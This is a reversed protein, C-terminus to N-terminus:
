YFYGKMTRLVCKKGVKKQGSPSLKVTLKRLRNLPKSIKPCFHLMYRAKIDKRIKQYLRRIDTVDKFFFPMGGSSNSIKKLIEQYQDYDEMQRGISYILSNSREVMNILTYPDVASSNDEGDSLIIVINQGIIPKMMKVGYAIADYLATAGFPIAISLSKELEDINNTFESDEFVEHNFFVIIARDDLRLLEKLFIKAIDKVDAIKDKMSSSIDILLLLHFSSQGDATFYNLEQPVGDEMLIFDEQTLGSIYNDGKDTVSVPVQVQMVNVEQSDDSRFSLVTDKLNGHSLTRAVAELTKSKAARGFDYKLTYPPANFEKILKGDLYIALSRIDDTDIGATNVTVTQTGVWIADEMPSVIKIKPTPEDTASLGVVMIVALLGLLLISIKM